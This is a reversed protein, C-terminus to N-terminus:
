PSQPTVSDPHRIVCGISQKGAPVRGAGVELNSRKLHRSTEASDSRVEGPPLFRDEAAEAQIASLDTREAGEPYGPWGM